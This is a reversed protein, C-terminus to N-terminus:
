ALNKLWKLINKQTELLDNRNELYKVLLPLDEAVDVDSLSDIFCYKIEENKFAKTLEELTNSKSYEISEILKLNPIHNGALLYFGGDLSPGFIIKNTNNKLTSVATNLIDTNIQPIDTGILLYADCENLICRAVKYMSAGLSLGRTRIECKGYPRAWYIFVQDESKKSFDNIVEKVAKISLGYFDEALHQGISEALRTKVKSYGITKAFIGIGIKM